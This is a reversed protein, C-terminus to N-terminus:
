LALVQPGYPQLQTYALQLPRWLLLYGGNDLM